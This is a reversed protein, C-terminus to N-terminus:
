ESVEYSTKVESDGQITQGVICYKEHSLQIAREVAVPDVNEGKVNFKVEITQYPKPYKEPQHGTVTVDISSVKQRKKDLISKVDMGMCGGLGMLLLQAPAFNKGGLKMVNGKTDTAEYQLDPGTWKTTITVQNM